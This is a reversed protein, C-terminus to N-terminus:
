IKIRHQFLYQYHPKNETIIDYVYQPYETEEDNSITQDFRTSEM